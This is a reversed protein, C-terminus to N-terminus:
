RTKRGALRSSVCQDFAGGKNSGGVGGRGYVWRGTQPDCTGGIHVACQAQISQCKAKAAFAPQSSCLVVACFAAIAILAKSM